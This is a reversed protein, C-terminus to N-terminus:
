ESGRRPTDIVQRLKALLPEPSLPKQVLVMGSSLVGHHVIADDTHGSTFLVKYM